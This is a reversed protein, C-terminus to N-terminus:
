NACHRKIEPLAQEAAQAGIDIVEPIRHFDYLNMTGVQPRIIV